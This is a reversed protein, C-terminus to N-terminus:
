EQNSSKRIKELRYCASAQHAFNLSNNYQIAYDFKLRWGKFGIGFFAAEPNLNFGTRAFLKKHICYEMGAKITPEYALDKEIESILLIEEAPKFSLGVSLKVPVREGNTLKPQNLNQIYAGISLQDTIEAIGGASVSLAGKTGFGEARYQIYNLKLGLSAIGFQNSFGTTIIQESYIKDGFKYVGVGLVGTKLPTSFAAAMRSSGPLAPRAEFSFAANTESVRALGGINNLVSWEDSLTSSTNGIAATRAGITTLSSQATTNESLLFLLISILLFKM